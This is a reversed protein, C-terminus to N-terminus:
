TTATVQYRNASAYHALLPAGWLSSISSFTIFRQAGLARAAEFLALTGQIKCAQVRTVDEHTLQEFALQSTLGAAHFVADIPLTLVQPHRL